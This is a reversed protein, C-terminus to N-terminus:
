CPHVARSPQCSVPTASTTARPHRAQAAYHLTAARLALALVAIAALFTLCTLIEILTRRTLRVARNSTFNILTTM